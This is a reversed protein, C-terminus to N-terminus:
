DDIEALSSWHFLPVTHGHLYGNTQAVRISCDGKIFIGPCVVEFTSTWEFQELLATVQKWTNHLYVINLLM